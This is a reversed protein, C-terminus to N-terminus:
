PEGEEYGGGDGGIDAGAQGKPGPKAAALGNLMQAEHVLGKIRAITPDLIGVNQFQLFSDAPPADIGFVTTNTADIADSKVTGVLQSGRAITQNYLIQGDPHPQGNEGLLNITTRVKVQVRGGVPLFAGDALLDSTSDDGLGDYNTNRTATAGGSVVTVQNSGAVLTLNGTLNCNAVAFIEVQPMESALSPFDVRGPVGIERTHNLLLIRGHWPRSSPAVGNVREM